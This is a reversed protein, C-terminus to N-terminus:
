NEALVLRKKEMDIQVPPILVEEFTRNWWIVASEGKLYSPVIEWLPAAMQYRYIDVKAYLPTQHKDEYNERLLQSSAADLLDLWPRQNNATNKDLLKAALAFLWSERGQLMNAHPKFGIFWINWDLRYHYPACFCPRRTVTGPKCPFELEIWDRGNYTISVIPEYRGQGVSGFAGYTNVLRFRGFSANMQQRKGGIQLLNEVVPRSLSGIVWLLYLDMLLRPVRWTYGQRTDSYLLRHMWQPWCVDDLCALAPIITLHNLFAFNGSFIINLMFGAQILGGIRVIWLVLQSLSSSGPIYTPCLVMWSTYVQVFLDLDVAHMLARKPLFHFVFSMPSPIPQTEFHYYLCTKQTWCSDGRIKILGAGISIRFCLWRFLWLIIPSPPSKRHNQRRGFQPFLDCLFMALFGTELLQSEWGYNYFSTASASTIVTFYLIWLFFMLIMSDVGIIVLASIVLGAMYVAELQDDTVLDSWWFLSPHNQFGDWSSPFKQRLPEFFDTAPQLGQSGMLGRNQYYAGLFAIFYIIGVLRLIAWKAVVWTTIEANLSTTTSSERTEDTAILPQQKMDDKADNNKEVKPAEPLIPKTAEKERKATPQRRQRLEAM